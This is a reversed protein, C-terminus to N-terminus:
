LKCAISDLVIPAAPKKRVLVAAVRLAGWEANLYELPAPDSFPVGGVALVTEQQGAFSAEPLDEATASSRVALRSAGLDRAATLIAQELGPPLPAAAVLQRAAAGARQLAGLDDVDLDSLLRRLPAELGADALLRRYAVTTVAFGDPVVVGQPGLARILEGLSANKGGVLPLDALGVAAFPLVLAGDADTRADTAPM